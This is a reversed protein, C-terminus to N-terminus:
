DEGTIMRVKELLCSETFPKCLIGAVMPSIKQLEELARGSGSMLIVPRAFGQKNAQLLFESGTMIPMDLDLLVVELDNGMSKYREIINLAAVGDAALAVNFDNALLCFSIADRIASEDDVILVKKKM